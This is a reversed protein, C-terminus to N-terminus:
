SGSILVVTVSVQDYTIAGGINLQNCDVGIDTSGAPLPPTVGVLTATDPSGSAFEFTTGPVVGISSTGLRCRGHMSNADIERNARVRALLLARAGPPVNVVGTVGCTIFTESEPDCDRLAGTRGFGGLLASPVQALTSESIDVGTLANDVVENSGIINTALDAATLSDPAVESTGVSDPGLDAARLGGGNFTDDRVDVSKVQGDVIDSSRVVLHTAYASAPALTFAVILALYGVM